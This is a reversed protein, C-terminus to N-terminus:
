KRPCTCPTWAVDIRRDVGGALHVPALRAPHQPVAREGPQDAPARPRALDGGRGQGPAVPRCCPPASPKRVPLCRPNMRRASRAGRRCPRSRHVSHHINPSSNPHNVMLHQDGTGHAPDRRLKKRRQPFAALRSEHVAGLRLVTVVTPRQDDPLQGVAPHQVLRQVAHVRHDM